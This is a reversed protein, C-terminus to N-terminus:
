LCEYFFHIPTPTNRGVGLMLNSGCSRLKAMHQLELSILDLTEAIGLEIGLRYDSHYMFENWWVHSVGNYGSRWGINSNSWRILKLNGRSHMLGRPIICYVM